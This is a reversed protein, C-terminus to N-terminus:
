DLTLEIFRDEQKPFEKDIKTLIERIQASLDRKHKESLNKVLYKVRIIAFGAGLLLGSKHTDAKIHKKLSEEGWIPLFHTPGDIEIVTKQVPLFLDVELNNNVILGTKHFIVQFGHSTLDKRLFNEIKSGDKSAVRIAASAAKRLAEKDHDSMAEWIEKSKDVRSQRIDDPLTEWYSHVKESIKFKTDDSRITGKTPHKHRGSTLALSQAASKDRLTKGAKKLFRRVKNPYTKLHEAIEYPSAGNDYMNLMIQENTINSM